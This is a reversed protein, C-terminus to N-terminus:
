LTGSTQVTSISNFKKTVFALSFSKSNKVNKFSKKLFARAYTYFSKWLNVIQSIENLAIEHIYILLITINGFKLNENKM